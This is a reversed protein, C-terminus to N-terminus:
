TNDASLASRHSMRASTETETLVATLCVFYQSKDEETPGPSDM